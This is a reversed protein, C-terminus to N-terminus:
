LQITKVHEALHLNINFQKRSYDSMYIVSCGIVLPKVVSLKCFKLNFSFGTKNQKM